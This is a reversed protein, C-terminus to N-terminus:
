RSRRKCNYMARDAAQVTRGMGAACGITGCSSTWSRAIKSIRRAGHKTPCFIVFEDGGVRAAVRDDARGRKTRCSSLMFKAFERLIKDGYLHGDPHADQAQKFGDLDCSVFWGERGDTLRELARRNHLRTLRDREARERWYDREKVLRDVVNCVERLSVSM